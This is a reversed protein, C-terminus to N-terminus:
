RLLRMGRWDSLNKTGQSKEEARWQFLLWVEEVRSQGPWLELPTVQNGCTVLCRLVAHHWQWCYVLLIDRIPRSRLFTSWFHELSELTLRPLSSLHTRPSWSWFVCMILCVPSMSRTKAHTQETASRHWGCLMCLLRCLSFNETM